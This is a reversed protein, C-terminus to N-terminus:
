RRMRATASEPTTAESGGDGGPLVAAAGSSFGDTASSQPLQAENEFGRAAAAYKFFPLCLACANAVAVILHNYYLRVAAAEPAGGAVIRSEDPRAFTITFSILVVLLFLGISGVIHRSRHSPRRWLGLVDEVILQYFVFPLLVLLLLIITGLIPADHRFAYYSALFDSRESWARLAFTDASLDM